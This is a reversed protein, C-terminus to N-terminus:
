KLVGFKKWSRIYNQVLHSDVPRQNALTPSHEAAHTTDLVLGGCSMRVFHTELFDIILAAPNDSGVPGPHSKVLAIWDEYPVRNTGPIGLAEGLIGIMEDWPQRSPNEVHYIPYPVHDGLLLESLITAVDTSPCWSLEGTFAPLTQITQSSKILFSLHETPNWYGSTTSGAIQGIRVTMARFLGPHQNLTQELMHECVLKAEGYGSALVSDVTMRQEPVLSNGSLLPFYGVTAISSIFQFSVKKFSSQLRTAIDRALHILSRMGSFQSEFASVPRTVSMPWANHVIHTTEKVVRDYDVTSLGLLPKSLDTELVTLKALATPELNIGGQNWPRINVSRRMLVAPGTSVSSKTSTLSKHWVPLSSVGLAVLQAQSSCAHGSSREALAVIVRQITTEPRRGETCLVQGYGASHLASEWRAIDALAHRRGDNFLWWGELLGFIIDIWAMSRTMELMILCGRPHLIEHINRTSQVLDHTAHICNTSLVIHQSHVLDAPPQKEIDLVRFKLFSYEKFKKRAGAVLSSSIDTVTYEVPVNLAAFLAVMQATTGGTGAGVELVKIPGGNISLQPIVQIIFERIQGIWTTNIPSQGYFGSLLGRGEPSGFILQLGDNKGSLCDALSAGAFHTLRHDSEFVPSREVLEELIENASRVPASRLTRRIRIDDIEVLGAQELYEFLCHVFQTHHPLHEVPGLINGAPTTRIPCGLQEFADLIHVVCLEDSLPLINDIYGDLGNQVIFDDTNARIRGFCQLIAETLVENGPPAPISLKGNSAGNSTRTSTAEQPPGGNIGDHGNVAIVQNTSEHTGNMEEEGGLGLAKQVCQVLERLKTIELLDATDLSIKFALEIERALEMGMLSDIGLEILDSDDNIETPELGSLNVLIDKVTAAVKMSRSADKKPALQPTSLLSNAGGNSVPASISHTTDSSSLGSIVKGLAVKSVRQYRIGLIVEALEGTLSDFVFVDSLFQKPSPRNHCAYVEWVAKQSAASQPLRKPSKMWKEIRDSIYVEKDSRGTMCNVFIGAVQCFSDALGIDVWRRPDQSLSVRGASEEDMGVMREVGKYVESYEVTDAFSRYINDGHLSADVDMDPRLLRRPRSARVLREYRSFESQSTEDDGSRLTLRGAIHTMPKSGAETSQSVMKWEWIRRDDGLMEADLWAKRSVNLPMPASSDMNDLQPQFGEQALEPCLSSVADVAISIQLISPCLPAAEAVKHGTVYQKFATSDTNVLFRAHRRELDQYGLLTWLDSSAEVTSPPAQQKLPGKLDLWHRSKEFQYPPLLLPFHRSTQTSHHPWFLTNLGAKWLTITVDALTELGGKGTISVSQFHSTKPSELARSAMVTITSNSGAELWIASPYQQSLRQVADNFWVPQRMHDAVYDAALRGVHRSQTAREFPIEADRFHISKGIERLAPLLPEVLTSHFANTVQLRKAKISSSFRPDNSRLNEVKDIAKTSGALTFSRRGNYCAVVAVDECAANVAGLLDEVVSLDAEVAMMSGKDAGWGQQILQARGKIMRLADELSLIGSVCLATLEGFSHGVVAAVTVGCDMWSKACSYQMAFLVTQLKVVDGITDRQFIEPYIGGSVGIQQCIRHCEDLHRQLITTHEYVQRDLGVFTSVQGGFCLIVPRQPPLAVRWSASHFILSRALSHNSQRSVQFAVDALNQHPDQDKGERRISHLLKSCYERLSRDDLASLWFPHKSVQYHTTASKPQKRTPPQTIVMSANTGSAGYNNILVARYSADWTRCQTDVQIRDQRNSKIAPNIVNFSAQPPIVGRSIMLLAKILSVIGSASETHGVLGKVSGLSLIDSRVSGGFVRRIAEYEAPDGVPTGTGHAEVVSVQGPDLGAARTVHSFMEALSSSDPVTIPTCNCNQYVATAALVGHIQDGDRVADCYRKLFVAGAGEGRCYGDAKADFPKCQGSPSLFSAGALNHFWEPSSMTNVGAAVAATCEGSLIAQCATHIAVASSSCATNIVMSPGTWGFYHSVKGAAFSGLNGTVSYANAPHCAINNEYDVLGLGVYCGIRSDKTRHSQTTPAFYGSNEVAQYVTQLMIRHQPDASAMERPSKKFFKHDFADYDQLFNGYWTRNEDMGRWTSQMGFRGPPVPIHQSKGLCSMGIIAIRNDRGSDRDGATGLSHIRRPLNPSLRLHPGIRSMLSPAVCSKPGFLTITSAPSTLAESWTTLLTRYWDPRDVLMSRIAVEHLNADALYKGNVTGRVPFALESAGPFQFAPTTACFRICQETMTGHSPWHFRGSLGIEAAVIDAARLRQILESSKSKSVTITARREDYVVSIYAEPFQGLLKKVRSEAENPGWAVSLSVAEDDPGGAFNQADVVAGVLMALRIAVAGHYQIQSRSSSSAAVLASLLGTCIGVAERQESSVSSTDELSRLYQVLHGTVVLPTVLINPWPAATHRSCGTQFWDKLWQLEQAGPFTHVTPLAKALAAFHLPLENVVDLIWHLDADGLVTERLETFSTETASLTQPGFLFIQTNRQFTM